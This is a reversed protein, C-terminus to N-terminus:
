LSVVRSQARSVMLAKAHLDDHPNFLAIWYGTDAFVANM